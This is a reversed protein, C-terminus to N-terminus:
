AKANGVVTPFTAVNVTNQGDTLVIMFRTAEPRPTAANFIARGQDIGCGICTAGGQQAIGATANLASAKINTMPLVTRSSGSFMAIGVRAGGPGTMLGNIMDTVFQKMLAFNAPAISGSEDLVFVIDAVGPNQVDFGTLSITSDFSASCQVSAPVTVQSAVTPEQARATAGTMTIGAAVVAAFIRRM